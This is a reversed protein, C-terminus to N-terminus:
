DNGPLLRVYMVIRRTMVDPCDARSRVSQAQEEDRGDTVEWAVLHM